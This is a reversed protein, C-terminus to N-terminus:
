VPYCTLDTRALMIMLLHLYITCSACLYYRVYRQKKSRASSYTHSTLFSSESLELFTTSHISFYPNWGKQSVSFSWHDSSLIISIRNGSFTFSSWVSLSLAVCILVQWIIINHMVPQMLTSSDTLNWNLFIVDILTLWSPFHVFELFINSDVSDISYM